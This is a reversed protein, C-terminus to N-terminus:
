EAHSCGTERTRTCPGPTRGGALSRNRGAQVLQWAGYGLLGLAITLVGGTKTQPGLWSALYGVYPVHYEVKGLLQASTVQWPDDANNADGRTSLVVAGDLRHTQAVIRHTVLGLEESGPWFTIVDGVALREAEAESRVPAVVVQSGVPYTPAMSGSRVTLPTWGRAQPVVWVAVLVAACLAVVAWAVLRGVGRLGVM